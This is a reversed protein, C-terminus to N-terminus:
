KKVPDAPVFTMLLLVASFALLLYIGAQKEPCEGLECQTILLFNRFSWALNFTGAFLNFRKAWVRPIIFLAIAVICFIINMLGPHGFNTKDARMGTITTQISPIYVWPMFCVIIVAFAAIIGIYNSYKMRVFYFLFL